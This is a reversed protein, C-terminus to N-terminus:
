GTFFPKQVMKIDSQVLIIVRQRGGFELRHQAVIIGHQGGDRVGQRLFNKGYLRKAASHQSIKADAEVMDVELGRFRAGNGDSIGGIDQGFTCGIYGHKQEEHGGTSRALPFSQHTRPLPGSPVGIM